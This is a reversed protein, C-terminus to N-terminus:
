KCGCLNDLGESLLLVSITLVPLGACHPALWVDAAALFADDIEHAEKEKKLKPWRDEACIAKYLIGQKEEMWELARKKFDAMGHYDGDDLAKGLEILLEDKKMSKLRQIEQAKDKSNM